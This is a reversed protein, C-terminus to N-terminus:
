MPLKWLFFEFYFSLNEIIFEIFAFFSPFVLFEIYYETKGQDNVFPVMMKDFLRNFLDNTFKKETELNTLKMSSLLKTNGSKQTNLAEKLIFKIMIVMKEETMSEMKMLFRILLKRNLIFSEDISSLALFNMRQFIYTQTKTLSIISIRLPIIYNKL